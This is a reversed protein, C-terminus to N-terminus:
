QYLQENESSDRGARGDAELRAASQRLRQEDDVKPPAGSQSATTGGAGVPSPSSLPPGHQVLNKGTRATADVSRKQEGGSHGTEGRPLLPM